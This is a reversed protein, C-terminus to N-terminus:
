ETEADPLGQAPPTSYAPPVETPEADEIPVLVDNLESPDEPTTM